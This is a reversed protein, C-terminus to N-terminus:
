QEELKKITIPIFIGNHGISSINKIENYKEENVSIVMCDHIFFCVKLNHENIMNNFALSCFDVASSQIWYNFLNSGNLIPRGYYNFIHTGGVSDYEEQLTSIFSDIGLSTKVESVKSAKIGAISAVSTNLAGYLMSLMGRKFRARDTVKIKFNDAIWQYVDTKDIVIDPCQTKFFFFPECSKFDIEILFEDENSSRLKKRVEKKMVLFNTGTHISTRGTVSKHTYIPTPLLTNEKIVTELTEYVRKRVPFISSHYDTIINKYKGFYSFLYDFYEKSKKNGLVKRYDIITKLNLTDFFDEFFEHVTKLHEGNSLEVLASLQSTTILMGPDDTYKFDIRTGAISYSPEVTFTEINLLRFNNKMFSNYWM